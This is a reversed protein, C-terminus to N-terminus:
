EQPFYQRFLAGVAQRSASEFELYRKLIVEGEPTLTSGARGAGGKQKFILPFGLDEEAAQIIKWAKSYAMNISQSASRLSHGDQILQLLTIVGKGLSPDSNYIQIKLMFHQPYLSNEM